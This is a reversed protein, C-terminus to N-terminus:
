QLNQSCVTIAPVFAKDSSNCLLNRNSCDKFYIKMAVTTVVTQGGIIRTCTM